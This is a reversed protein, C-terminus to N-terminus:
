TRWPFSADRLIEPFSLTWRLSDHLFHSCWSRIGHWFELFPRLVFGEFLLSAGASLCPVHRIINIVEFLIFFIREARRGSGPYEPVRKSHALFALIRSRSPLKQVCASCFPDLTLHVPFEEFIWSGWLPPKPWHLLAFSRPLMLLHERDEDRSLAIARHCAQRGKLLYARRLSRICTHTHWHDFFGCKSWVFISSCGTCSQSSTGKTTGPSGDLELM